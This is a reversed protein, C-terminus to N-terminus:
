EGNPVIERVLICKASHLMLTTEERKALLMLTKATEDFPFLEAVEVDLPGENLIKVNTTM